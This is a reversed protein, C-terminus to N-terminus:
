KGDTPPHMGDDALPLRQQSYLRFCAHSQVRIMKKWEEGAKSGRKAHFAKRRKGSVRKASHISICMRTRPYILRLKM